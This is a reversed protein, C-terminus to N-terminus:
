ATLPPMGAIEWMRARIDEDLPTVRHGDRLEAARARALERTRDEARKDERYGDRFLFRPTWIARRFHQLTHKEKLFNGGPGLRSLIDMHITDEGVRFPDLARRAYDVFDADLVLQELSMCSDAELSGIGSILDAGALMAFLGTGVKEAGAQSGPEAADTVFGATLCPLSYHRAMEVGAAVLLAAEPSGAAFSGIKMDIPGSCISWIVPAGPAAAQALCVSALIEANSVVLTSALDVPSSGGMLVMSIPVVPVGARALTILGESSGEELILPSVPCQVSSVIPRKRLEERGGVVAAAMEVMASAEAASLTEHQVNKTTNELAIAVEALTHREEPADGAVVMPWLVDVADLADAVRTLEALDQSTSPRRVGTDLDLVNIGAGDTTVHPRGDPLTLARGDRHALVVKKPATEVLADLLNGPIRVRPGGADVVAGAAALLDRALPSYVNVGTDRLLDRTAEHIAVREDSDLIHLRAPAM